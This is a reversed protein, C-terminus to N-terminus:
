PSIVAEISRWAEWRSPRHRQWEMLMTSFGRVYRYPTFLGHYLALSLTKEDLALFADITDTNVPVRELEEFALQLAAVRVAEVGVKQCTSRVSTLENECDGAAINIAARIKDDRGTPMVSDLFGELRSIGYPRNIDDRSPMGLERYRRRMEVQGNTLDNGRKDVEVSSENLNDVVLRLPTPLSRAEGAGRIGAVVADRSAITSRGYEELLIGLRREDCGRRASECREVAQRVATANAKGAIIASLLESSPGVEESKAVFDAHTVSCSAVVVFAYCAIPLGLKM